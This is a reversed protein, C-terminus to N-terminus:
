GLRVVSRLDVKNKRKRFRLSGRTGVCRASKMEIVEGGTSVLGQRQFTVIAQSGAIRDEQPLLQRGDIPKRYLRALGCIEVKMDM